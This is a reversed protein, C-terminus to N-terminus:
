VAPLQAVFQLLGIGEHHRLTRPQPWSSGPTSSIFRIIAITSRSIRLNKREGASISADIIKKGQYLEDNQTIREAALNAVGPESDDILVACAPASSERAKIRYARVNAGEYGNVVAVLFFSDFVHAVSLEVACDDDWRLKRPPDVFLVM